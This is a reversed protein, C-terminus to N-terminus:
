RSGLHEAAWRVAQKEMRVVGGGEGARHIGGEGAYLGADGLNQLILVDGETPMAEDLGFDNISDGVRPHGTPSDGVGRGAQTRLIKLVDVLM